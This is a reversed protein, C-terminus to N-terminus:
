INLRAPTERTGTSNKSPKNAAEWVRKDIQYQILELDYDARLQSERLRQSCFAMADTTTKREGSEAISLFWCSSPRINGNPLEVDLHGMVASSVLKHVLKEYLAPDPPSGAEAPM